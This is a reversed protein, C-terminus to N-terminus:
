LLKNDAAKQVAELKNRVQLKKYINEIHKRVTFYSINLNNAIREYTLGSKLQNLLELERPTLGFDENSLNNQFPTRVLKLARLAIGPSMAAGGLMTDTIAKYLMKGSDEKLLYGTAGAMIAKFLSEDDDFMTIMLVKIHPWRKSIEQTADIGNMEPMQIDMLAIDVNSDKELNDIAEKGNRAIHKIVIDEYPSLRELLANLALQNDEAITIRIKMTTNKYLSGAKLSQEKM